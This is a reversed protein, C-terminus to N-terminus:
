FTCVCSELVTGASPVDEGIYSCTVQPPWVCVGCVFSPRPCITVPSMKIQAPVNVDCLSHSLLLTSKKKKLNPAELDAVLESCCLFIFTPTETDLMPCVCLECHFATVPPCSFSASTTHVSCLSVSSSLLTSAMGTCQAVSARFSLM